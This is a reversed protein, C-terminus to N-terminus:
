AAEQNAEAKMYQNGSWVELRDIVAPGRTSRNAENIADQISTAGIMIWGYPGRYRYSTYGDAACPRETYYVQRIM